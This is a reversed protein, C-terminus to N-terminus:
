AHRHHPIWCFSDSFRAPSLNGQRDAAPCFAHRTASIIIVPKM